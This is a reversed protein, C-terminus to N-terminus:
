MPTGNPSIAATRSRIPMEAGTPLGHPDLAPYIAHATMMSAVNADIAARFPALDTAHLSDRDTRVVPVEDDPAEGGILRRYPVLRSDDYGFMASDDIVVIHRLGPIM